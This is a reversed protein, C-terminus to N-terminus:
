LRPKRKTSSFPNSGKVKQIGVTLLKTLWYPCPQSNNVAAVNM